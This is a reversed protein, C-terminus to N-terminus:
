KKRMLVLLAFVVVIVCVTSLIIASLDLKEENVKTSEDDVIENISANEGSVIEVEGSQEDEIIGVNDKALKEFSYSVTASDQADDLFLDAKMNNIKVDVEDTLKVNDWFEIAVDVRYEVGEKFAEDAPAWSVSTIEYGYYNNLEYDTYQEASISPQKGIEPEKVDTIWIKDIMKPTFTAELLKTYEVISENGLKTTVGVCYYTTGIRQEPIFVARNENEIAVIDDMSGTKSEYWQYSVTEGSEGSVEAGVEFWFSATGIEMNVGNPHADEPKLYIEAKLEELNVETACVCCPLVFCMLVLLLVFDRKM